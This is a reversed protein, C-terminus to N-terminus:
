TTSATTATSSRPRPGAGARDEAAVRDAPGDGPHARDRLRKYQKTWRDVQRAIYNGPKGYDGLGITEHDINHLDRSRRSRAAHLDRPARGARVAPCPRTGSCAARSWTWSTSGRASSARRRRVARLAQGGPLRDSHLASIVRFERDVAHASPLLKGLPKRRLVYTEGPTSLQYTPNSQGGKFQASRWRVRSLGRRKRRMWADLKAEDLRHREEVPKTGPSAEEAPTSM